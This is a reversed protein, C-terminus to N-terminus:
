SFIHAHIAFELWIFDLQVMCMVLLMSSYTILKVSLQLEDQILVGVTPSVGHQSAINGYM